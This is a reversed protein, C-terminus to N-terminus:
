LGLAKGVGDWLEIRARIAAIATDEAEAIKTADSGCFAEVLDLSMGAHMEGDVEIHRALYFHFYPAETEGMDLQKLLHRFMDPIITERGFAFAAAVRHAQGTAIIAFTKAMFDLSPQPVNRAAALAAEPGSRGVSEIFSRVPATDCGIEEMSALYLEYHSMFVGDEPTIDSEEDLVIANVHRVLSTPFQARPVWPSNTPTMVNQLVKVLSMFDWVPYVHHSMFTRIDDLSGLADKRLVPHALLEDRAAQIRAMDLKAAPADLM